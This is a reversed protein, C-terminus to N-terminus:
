PMGNTLASVDLGALRVSLHNGEFLGALPGVIARQHDRKLWAIVM